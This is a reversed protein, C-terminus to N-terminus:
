TLSSVSLILLRRAIKMVIGKFYEVNARLALINDHLLLELYGLKIYVFYIRFYWKCCENKILLFRIFEYNIFNNKGYFFLFIKKM